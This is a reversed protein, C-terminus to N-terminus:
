YQSSIERIPHAKMAIPGGSPQAVLVAVEAFVGEDSFASDDSSNNGPPKRVIWGPCTSASSRKRDATMTMM